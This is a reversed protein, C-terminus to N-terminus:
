APRGPATVTGTSELPTPGGTRRVTGPGSLAPSAVASTQSCLPVREATPGSARRQPCSLSQPRPPARRRRPASRAPALDVSSGGRELRATTTESAAPVSAARRAGVAARDLGVPRGAEPQRKSTAISGHQGGVASLEHLRVGVVDAAEDAARHEVGDRVALRVAPEVPDRARVRAPRALRDPGRQAHRRAAREAAAVAVDQRDGHRDLQQVVREEDVVVDDVAALAAATPRRERGLVAEPERQVGAVRQGHEGVLDQSAM